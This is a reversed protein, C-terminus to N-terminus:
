KTMNPQQGKPAQEKRILSLSHIRPYPTTSTSLSTSSHLSFSIIYSSINSNCYCAQPCDYSLYVKGVPPPSFVKELKQRAKKEDPEDICNIKVEARSSM